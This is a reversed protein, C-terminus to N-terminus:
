QVTRCYKLLHETLRRHAKETKEDKRRKRKEAYSM